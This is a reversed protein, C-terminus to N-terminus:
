KNIYMEEENKCYYLLVIGNHAATRYILWGVDGYNNLISQDFVQNIFHSILKSRLRRQNNRYILFILIKGAMLTQVEPKVVEPAPPQYYSVAM